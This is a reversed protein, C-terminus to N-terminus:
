PHADEYDGDGTQDRASSTRCTESRPWATLYSLWAPISFAKGGSYYQDKAEAYGWLSYGIIDIM